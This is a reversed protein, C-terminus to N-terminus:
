AFDRPADKSEAYRRDADDWAAMDALETVTPDPQADAQMDAVQDCLKRIESQLNGAYQALRTRPDDIHAVAASAAAIIAAANPTHIMQQDGDPSETGLSHVMGFVFALCIASTVSVCILNCVGALM